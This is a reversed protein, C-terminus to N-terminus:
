ADADIDATIHIGTVIRNRLSSELQGYVSNEFGKGLTRNVIAKVETELGRIREMIAESAMARVQTGVAKSLWTEKDYRSERYHMHARVIDRLLSDRREPALAESIAVAIANEIQGETINLKLETTM